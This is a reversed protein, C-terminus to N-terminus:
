PCALTTNALKCLVSESKTEPTICQDLIPKPYETCPLAPSPSTHNSSGQGELLGAPAPAGRKKKNLLARLGQTAGETWEGALGTRLSLQKQVTVMAPQLVRETMPLRTPHLSWGQVEACTPRPAQAPPPSVLLPSLDIRAVGSEHLAVRGTVQLEMAMVLPCASLFPVCLLSTLPQPHHFHKQCNCCKQCRPNAGNVSVIETQCNCCNQGRPNAGNVSVIEM